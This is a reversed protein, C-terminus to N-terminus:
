PIEGDPFAPAPGEPQTPLSSVPSPVIMGPTPMGPVVEQAKPLGLMDLMADVDLWMEALSANGQLLGTIVTAILEKKTDVLPAAEAWVKEAEDIGHNLAITPQLVQENFMNCLNDLTEEAVAIAQNAHVTADAKTGYQGEIAAREPVLYSRLMGSDFYRLAEIYEAGHQTSAEVWQFMWAQVKEIPVGRDLLDLAATALTNPMVIPEGNKLKAALAQAILFFSREAGHEDKGTGPPYAIIPIPCAALDLYALHKKFARQWGWWATTRCNEYRSRGYWNGDQMDNACWAYYPFTLPVDM